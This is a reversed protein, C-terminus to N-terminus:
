LRMQQSSVVKLLHRLVNEDEVEFAEAEAHGGVCGCKIDQLPQDGDIFTQM